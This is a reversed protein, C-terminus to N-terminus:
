LCYTGKWTLIAYSGMHLVTRAKEHWFWLAGWIISLVHVRREFDYLEGFPPCYSTGKWTLIM